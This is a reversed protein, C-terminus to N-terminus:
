ARVRPRPLQRQQHPIVHREVRRLEKSDDPKFCWWNVRKPGVSDTAGRNRGFLDPLAWELIDHEQKELVKGAASAVQLVLRPHTGFRPLGTTGCGARSGLSARARHAQNDHM